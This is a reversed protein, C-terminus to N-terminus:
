NNEPKLQTPLLDHHLVQLQNLYFKGHIGWKDIEVLNLVDLLKWYGMGSLLGTRRVPLDLAIEANFLGYAFHGYVPRDKKLVPFGFSDLKARKRIEIRSGDRHAFNIDV